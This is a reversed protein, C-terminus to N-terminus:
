RCAAGYATLLIGLDRQGVVGDLDLDAAPNYDFSGTVAGYAAVLLGLDSENVVDDFNVDAHCSLPCSRRVLEGRLSTLIWRARTGQQETLRTRCGPRAYSMINDTDPMYPPDGPGCPGPTSGVYECADNVNEPTLQPDAPTDCVLDGAILCNQGNVCEKGYTTDHTHFLDLYHAIEHPFTSPDGATGTCDNSMIVGQVPSFTFSSIGCYLSTRTFYVNIVGGVAHTRRLVNTLGADTLPNFRDDDLYDIRGVRCVHLGHPALAANADALAQELRTEDIGFAGASDRCVHFYLPIYYTEGPGAGNAGGGGKEPVASRALAAPDLNAPIETGCGQGDASPHLWMLALLLAGSSRM